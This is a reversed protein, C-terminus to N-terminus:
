TCYTAYDGPLKKLAEVVAAGLTSTDLTSWVTGDADTLQNKWINTPAKYGIPASATGFMIAVNVGLKDLLGPAGSFLKASNAAQNIEAVDNLVSATETSNSGIWNSVDNSSAFLPATQGEYITVTTTAGSSAVKQVVTNHTYYTVVNSAFLAINASLSKCFASTTTITAAGSATKSYGFASCTSESATFGADACTKSTVESSECEPVEESGDRFFYLYGVAMLLIVVFGILMYTIM